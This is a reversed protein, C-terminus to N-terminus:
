EPEWAQSFEADAFLTSLGHLQKLRLVEDPEMGLEVAIQADKWGCRSMEGVIASMHEVGHRGRARNHRITAAMLDRRNQRDEGLRVIPLHGRVRAAITQVEKGVRHRHFGDVVVFRAGDGEDMEVAVIPQTYGDLEVSRALLTMEPPAVANPNYDNARVMSSPVWAVCDVPEWRFPSAEAITQRVANLVPIREDEPMTLLIDRLQSSLAVPDAM